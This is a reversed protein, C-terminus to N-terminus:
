SQAVPPENEGSAPMPREVLTGKLGRNMGFYIIIAAIGLAMAVIVYMAGLGATFAPAFSLTLQEALSEPLQEINGSIVRAFADQLMESAAQIVEPSANTQELQQVFNQSAFMTVIWSSVIAGLAFGSQGAASNVGAAMGTLEPPSVTLVVTTRAPTAVGFGFGMVMFPLILQWYPTEPTLIFLCAMGIGLVLMGGTILRRAGFRMSLRVIVLTALAMAILFPAMRLGSEVPGVGQIKQFFTGIQYFFSAQGVSLMIGAFIALSLDRADYLHLAAGHMRRAVWRYAIIFGFVCIAVVLFLNRESVGGGFTLLGFVLAFIAAAWLVNLLLELRSIDAPARSETIDRRVWRFAIFGVIIAPVFAFWQADAAVAIGNTTSALLLGVGQTGFIAGYAFARAQLSFVLTVIAVTMPVVLASSITNLTNIFPFYISDVLFMGLINTVLVGGLGFFLFRKRGFLDGSAGGVLTLVALLLYGAAVALPTGSGPDRLGQQIEPTYLSMVPPQLTTALVALMCAALVRFSQPDQLLEGFVLKGPGPLRQAIRQIGALISDM